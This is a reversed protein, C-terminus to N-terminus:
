FRLKRKFPISYHGKSVKYKGLFSSLLADPMVSEEPMLELKADLTNGKIDGTVRAYIGRGELSLSEIEIDNGKIYLSGRMTDFMDLPLKNDMFKVPGLSLSDISFRANGSNDKLDAEGTVRGGTKVGTIEFVGTEAIDAEWVNLKLSRTNKSVSARGRLTGGGTTGEFTVVARLLVLPALELRGSINNVSLLRWGSRNIDLGEMTFNYFLGKKFGVAEVELGQRKLSGELKEVILDGPVVILWGGWVVTVLIAAFVLLAKKIM